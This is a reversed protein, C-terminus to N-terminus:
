KNEKRETIRYVEFRVKRQDVLGKIQEQGASLRSDGAKFEVFVIGDDTFQIGDVPSGLFRFRQTDYPYTRLFPMFQESMKGYKVSLSQKGFRLQRLERRAKRYLALLLVVAFALIIIIELVM